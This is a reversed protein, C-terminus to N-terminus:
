FRQYHRILGKLVHVGYKEMCKVRAGVMNVRDAHESIERTIICYYGMKKVKKGRSWQDHSNYAGQSRCFACEVM